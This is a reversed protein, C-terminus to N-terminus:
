WRTRSIAVPVPFVAIAAALRFLVVTVPLVMVATSNPTGPEGVPRAVQRQRRATAPLAGLVRDSEDDLLDVPDEALEAERDGETGFRLGIPVVEGGEVKGLVVGREVGV